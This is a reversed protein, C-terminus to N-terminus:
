PAASPRSSFQWPARQLRDVDFRHLVQEASLEEGREALGVSAALMGLVQEPTEGAALRDRLGIAGHRKALREGGPGLVLPVHLYEPTPLDLLRQLLVQRPTTPLLDDGRVVQDVGQAADDVVVALNYAAVGDARRLVLDDVQEALRGHLGDVFEQVAGAARLRLAPPRGTALERARRGGEDLDRCTGPYVGKPPGHPAAAAEAIERRSCWCPYTLGADVLRDIAADYLHTRESQRVVAGDHHLGLAALDKLQEQESVPAAGTTLDEMRVLFTGGAARAACWALLATRLSGLHLSGSPSPAFRGTTV